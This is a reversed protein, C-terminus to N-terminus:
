AAAPTIQGATRAPGVALATLQRVPISPLNLIAHALSGAREDGLVPATLGRFKGLLRTRQHALDTEPLDPNNESTLVAGSKLRVETRAFSPPLTGSVDVTVLDCWQRVESNSPLQDTFVDPDSTD